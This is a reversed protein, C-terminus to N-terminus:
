SDHDLFSGAAEPLILGGRHLTMQFSSFPYRPLRGLSREGGQDVRPTCHISCSGNDGHGMAQDNNNYIIQSPIRAVQSLIENLDSRM